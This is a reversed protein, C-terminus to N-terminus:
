KRQTAGFASQLADSRLVAASALVGDRLVNAFEARRQTPDAADGADRVQGTAAVAVSVALLAELRRLQEGQAQVLAVLHEVTRVSASGDGHSQHLGKCILERCVASQSAKREESIQRVQEMLEDGLYIDLSVPCKPKPNTVM